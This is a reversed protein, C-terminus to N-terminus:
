AAKGGRRLRLLASDFHRVARATELGTYYTTTTNLSRHGLVRRVVEYAGPNADLFLKAGAHRFLHPHVRIGTHRHIAKCILDRLANLSKSGGSRGPFLATCGPVALRPRFQELYLEILAVSEPPLPYELAECNKADEPEVVIHLEKGLGSRVLHRDLDLKALNGIRLPAMLFIEIAVAAQAQLAGAHARPNRVLGILTEPLGLLAAANQPDDLPRLRSRNKKTLGRKGIDLNLRTLDSLSVANGQKDKVTFTVKM